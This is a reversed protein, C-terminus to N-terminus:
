IRDWHNEENDGGCKDPANFFEEVWKRDWKCLENINM